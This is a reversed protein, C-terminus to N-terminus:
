GFAAAAPASGSQVRREIDRAVTTLLTVLLSVVAFYFSNLFLMSNNLRVFTVLIPAGIFLFLGNLLTIGYTWPWLRALGIRIVTPIRNRWWALRAHIGTGAVGALIGAVPSGIGGGGVAYYGVSLAMLGLGGRKRQVFAASWILVACSVILTLIGTVLLNPVISLAPDGGMERAIPGETLSDFM